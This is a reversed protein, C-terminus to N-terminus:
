IADGKAAQVYTGLISLAQVQPKVARSIAEWHQSDLLTLDAFFAYEWPKEIIPISQIKTLNVQNEAFISLVAALSGCEHATSFQISVKNFDGTWGMETRKLIVFRTFNHKVTQIDRARIELGYLAAAAESAIAGVAADGGQRVQAASGATDSAEVLRIHPYAEFFAQCQLIAMPHSRVASLSRLSAGPLSLLAHRIPTYLEGHIALEYQSLLAYNPLISGAISNEIAIIGEDAEGRKVSQALARFSMKELVEVGQGYYRQAAQHHYSGRIGQIAVKM